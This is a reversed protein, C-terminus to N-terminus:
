RMERSAFVVLVFMVKERDISPKEETKEPEKVRDKERSRNRIARSPSAARGRTDAMKITAHKTVVCHHESTVLTGEAKLDPM